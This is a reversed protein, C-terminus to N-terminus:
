KKKSWFKKIKEHYDKIGEVINNWRNEDFQVKFLKRAFGWGIIYLKMEKLKKAKLYCQCQLNYWDPLTSYKDIDETTKFEFIDNGLELDIKCVITIEDDIKIEYKKEEFNFLKAIGSHIITGWYMIKMEQETFVRPKFFKKVPVRNNLLGWIESSHYRGLKREKQEEAFRQKLREDLEPFEDFRKEQGYRFLDVNLQIAKQKTKEILADFEKKSIEKHQLFASTMTALSGFSFSFNSKIFSNLDENKNYNNYAM